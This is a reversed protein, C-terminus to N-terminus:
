WSRQHHHQPDLYSALRNGRQSKAKFIETTLIQYAHDAARGDEFWVDLRSTFPKVRYFPGFEESTPVDDFLFLGPPVKDFWKYYLLLRRAPSGDTPPEPDPEVWLRELACSTVVRGDGGSEGPLPQAFILFGRLFVLYLSQWTVGEAIVGSVDDSFLAATSPPAECVCPIAPSGVLHITSRAEPQEGDGGRSFVATAVDRSVNAYVDSAGFSEAFHIISGDPSVAIGGVTGDRMAIGGTAAMDRLLSLLADVRFFSCAGHRREEVMERDFSGSGFDGEELLLFGGVSNCLSDFNGVTSISTSLGERLNPETSKLQVFEDAAPAGNVDMKDYFVLNMLSGFMQENYDDANVSPSGPIFISSGGM